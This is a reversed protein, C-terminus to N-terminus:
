GKEACACRGNGACFESDMVHYTNCECCTNTWPSIVHVGTTSPGPCELSARCVILLVLVLLMKRMNPLTQNWIIPLDLSHIFKFYGKSVHILGTDWRQWWHPFFIFTRSESTHCRYELNLLDWRQWWHSLFHFYSKRIHPLPIRFEIFGVAAVLTIPIFTRGESTHCRDELNFLDWPQWWHLAFNFGM